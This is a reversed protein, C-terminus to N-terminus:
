FRYKNMKSNLIKTMEWTYQNEDDITPVLTLTLQGPLFDTSGFRFFNTHFVPHETWDYFLEFKYVHFSIIKTIFYPGHFNNFLKKNPRKTQM